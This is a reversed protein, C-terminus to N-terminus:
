GDCDREMMANLTTRDIGGAEVPAFAALVTGLEEPTATWFTEPMWGLLLAAHGSLRAAGPGFRADAPDTSM